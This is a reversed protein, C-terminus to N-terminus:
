RWCRPRPPHLAALIVCLLAPTGYSASYNGYSNFGGPGFGSGDANAFPYSGSGGRFGGPGPESLNLTDQTGENQGDLSLSAGDAISVNGAVLWVVPAHTANNLFNVSTNPAFNVSSYKFVVPWQTPDYIGKGANAANNNTWNGTVALRLDIVTNSTINLVGDSGDAFPISLQAFLTPELAALSVALATLKLKYTLKTKM